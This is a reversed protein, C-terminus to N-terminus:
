PTDVRLDHVRTISTRGTYVATPVTRHWVDVAVISGESYRRREHERALARLVAELRATAYARGPGTPTHVAPGSLFDLFPMLRGGLSPFLASAPLVIVRGTALTATYEHYSPNPPLSRTYLPWSVFPYAQDGLNTVHGAIVLGPLLVALGRRLPDLADLTARVSPHRWLIWGIALFGATEGVRRGAGSPGWRSLIALSVLGVLLVIDRRGLQSRVGTGTYGM